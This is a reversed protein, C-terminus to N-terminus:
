QKSAKAQDHDKGVKYKYVTGMVILGILIIQISM